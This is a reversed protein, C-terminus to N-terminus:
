EEDRVIILLFLSSFSIFLPENVASPIAVAGCAASSRPRAKWAATPGLISEEHRRLVPGM